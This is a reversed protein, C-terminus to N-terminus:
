PALLQAPLRFHPSGQWEETKEGPFTEKKYPLGHIRAFHESLQFIPKKVDPLRFDAMPLEWNIAFSTGLAPIAVGQFALFSSSYKLIEPM